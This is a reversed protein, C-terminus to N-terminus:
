SKNFAKTSHMTIGICMNVTEYIFICTCPGFKFSCSQSFSIVEMLDSHGSPLLQVHAHIHIIM